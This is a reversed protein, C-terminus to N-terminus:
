SLRGPSPRPVTAAGLKGLVHGVHKTVTDACEAGTFPITSVWITSTVLMASIAARTHADRHSSPNDAPVSGRGVTM